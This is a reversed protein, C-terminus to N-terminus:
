SDTVFVSHFRATSNCSYLLGVVITKSELNWVIDLFGLGFNVVFARVLGTIM